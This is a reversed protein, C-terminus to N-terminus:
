ANELFAYLSDTNWAENDGNLLWCQLPSLLVQREIAVATRPDAWQVPFDWQSTEVTACQPPSAVNKREKM